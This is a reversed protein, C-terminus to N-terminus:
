RPAPGTGGKPPVGPTQRAASSLGAVSTAGALNRALFGGVRQRYVDGLRAEFDVHGAGEIMWLERQATVADYLRKLDAPPAMKDRMGGILLVPAKLRSIERLPSAQALTFGLKWEAIPVVLVGWYGSPLGTWSRFHDDVADQLTDYPEEAVVAHVTSPLEAAAMLITAAGQSLGLCGISTM